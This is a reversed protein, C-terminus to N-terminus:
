YDRKHLKAPIGFANYGDPVDKTVVAGAGIICNSGITIGATLTVNGGVWTGKGICIEGESGDDLVEGNRISHNTTAIVVNPGITVNEGLCLGAKANIYARHAIYVNDGCIINEPYTIISDQALKFRKGHKGFCWGTLFGRIECTIGHNPLISIARSIYYLPFEKTLINVIRRVGM